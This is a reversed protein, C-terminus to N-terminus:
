QTLFVSLLYSAISGTIWSNREMVASFKSLFGKSVPEKNNKIEELLSVIKLLETKDSSLSNLIDNKMNQIQDNLNITANLQTGIISNEIVKAKISFIPNIKNSQNYEYENIFYCSKYNKSLSFLETIYLREGLSTVVWDTSKLDVCNEFDIRKKKQNLILIGKFTINTRENIFSKGNNILNQSFMSLM